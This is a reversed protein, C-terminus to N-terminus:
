RSGGGPLCAQALKAALGAMEASRSGLGWTNSLVAASTGREPYIALGAQVGPNAGTVLVWPEGDPTRRGFWDESLLLALAERELLGPATLRGALRVLDRATSLLGGGGLNFSYDWTPVRLLEESEQYTWPHYFSYRAARNPIVALAEDFRTGPMGVPDLISERVWDQFAMGTVSEVVAALLNYNSSSYVREGGPQNVLSADRFVELADTATEYHTAFLQPTRESPHPLGSRHTALLRPTIVGEEREAFSPVYRQVPADLDLRGESWLKLVAAATVLKTVSAVGFVTEPRAPVRHEAQALGLADDLVLSDGVLVAAGVGVNRQREHVARVMGRLMAGDAVCGHPAVATPNAVGGASSEAAHGSSGATHAFSGEDASSSRMPGAPTPGGFVALAGGLFLAAFTLGALLAHRRSTTRTRRPGGGGGRM